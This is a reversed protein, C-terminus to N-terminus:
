NRKGKIFSRVTIVFERPKLVIPYSISSRLLYIVGDFHKGNVFNNRSLDLLHKSYIERTTLLPYSEILDEFKDLYLEKAKRKKEVEIPSSPQGRVFVLPKSVVCIMTHQLVRLLFEWDQHREFDEDFGGVKEVIDKKLILSSGFSGSVNMLLLDKRIDGEKEPSVIKEWDGVRHKYGTYCAQFSEDRSNLEELQLEIKDEAWVDDDDLFAIYDGSAKEIGTNRAASGNRNRDHRYIKVRKDDLNELYNEAPIESADDVVIVELNQYTQDLVSKVAETVDEREYTPIIVSVKTAEM